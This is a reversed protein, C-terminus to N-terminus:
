LVRKFSRELTALDWRVWTPRGHPCHSPNECEDLERLLVEVREAKLGQRARIASHCAMIKLCEDITQDLIALLEANEVAPENSESEAHSESFSKM